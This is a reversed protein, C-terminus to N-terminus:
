PDEEEIWFMLIQSNYGGLTTHIRNFLDKDILSYDEDKEGRKELGIIHINYKKFKEM